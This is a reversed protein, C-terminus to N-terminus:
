SLLFRGAAITLFLACVIGFIISSVFSTRENVGCRSLFHDLALFAVLGTLAVSLIVVILSM